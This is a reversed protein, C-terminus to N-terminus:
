RPAANFRRRAARALGFLGTGLLLMSGPEPVVTASSTFAATAQMTNPGGFSAGTEADLITRTQNTFSFSFREPALYVDTGAAPRINVVNATLDSGGVNNDNVYATNFDIFLLTAGGSDFFRITSTPAVGAFELGNLDLNGTYTLTPFEFGAATYETGLINLTLDPNAGASTYGGSLTAGTFGADAGSATYTFLYPPPTGPAGVTPDQFTAVTVTAAHAPGALAVSAALVAAGFVVKKLM